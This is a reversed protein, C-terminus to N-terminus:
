SAANCNSVSISAEELQDALMRGEFDTNISTLMFRPTYQKGAIMALYNGQSPHTVASYNTLTLGRKTLGAFEPVRMAAKFGTNEFVTVVIRSLLNM